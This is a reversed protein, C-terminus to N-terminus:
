PQELPQQLLPMDAGLSEELDEDRVDKADYAERNWITGRHQSKMRLNILVREVDARVQAPINAMIQEELRLVEDPRVMQELVENLSERNAKQALDLRSPKDELEQSLEQLQHQHELLQSTLEDIQAQAQRLEQTSESEHPSELAALRREMTMWQAKSLTENQALTRVQDQVQTLVEKQQVLTTNMSTFTHRVITQINRWDNCGTICDEMRMVAPLDVQMTM